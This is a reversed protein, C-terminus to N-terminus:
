TFRETRIMWRAANLCWRECLPDLAENIKDSRQFFRRDPQYRISTVAVRTVYVYYYAIIYKLIVYYKENNRYLATVLM